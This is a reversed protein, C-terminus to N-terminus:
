FHYGVGLLFQAPGHKIQTGHYPSDSRTRVALLYGGAWGMTSEVGVFWGSSGLKIEARAGIGVMTEAGPSVSEIGAFRSGEDMLSVGSAQLRGAVMGVSWRWRRPNGPAFLPPQCSDFLGENFWIGLRALRLKGTAFPMIGPSGVLDEVASELGGSSVDLSIELGQIAELGGRLSSVRQHKVLTTLNGPAGDRRLFVGSDGTMNVLDGCRVELSWRSPLPLGQAKAGGLPIALLLSPVLWRRRGSHASSNWM